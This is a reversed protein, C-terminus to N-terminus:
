DAVLPFDSCRVATAVTQGAHYRCTHTDIHTHTHTHMFAHTCTRDDGNSRSRGVRLTEVERSDGKRGEKKGRGILLGTREHAPPYQLTLSAAPAHTHSHTCSHTHTFSHTHTLSPTPSRQAVTLRHRAQPQVAPPSGRRKASTSKNRGGRRRQLSNIVTPLGAIVTTDRKSLQGTKHRLRDIHADSRDNHISGQGTM